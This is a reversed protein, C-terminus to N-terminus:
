ALFRLMADRLAARQDHQGCHEMMAQVLPRCTLAKVVALADTNRSETAM